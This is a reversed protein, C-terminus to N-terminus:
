AVVEFPSKRADKANELVHMIVTMDGPADVTPMIELKTGATALGDVMGFRTMIPAYIFQDAVTDFGLRKMDAETDATEQDHIELNSRKIKLNTMRGNDIFFARRINAGTPFTKVNNEGTMGIAINEMYIRPVIQRTAMGAPTATLNMYGSLSPVTGGDIQAQTAAGITVKLVLNDTAFTVLDGLIQGQDTALSIDRFPIRLRDTEEPQKLHKALDAFHQGPVSVISDGNLVLDIKTVQEITVNKLKLTIEEFTMGTDLQQSFTNNYGGGVFGDLKKKVARM